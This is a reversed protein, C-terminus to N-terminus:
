QYDLIYLHKRCVKTGHMLVFHQLFENTAIYECVILIVIVKNKLTANCDDSPKDLREWVIKIKCNVWTVIIKINNIIINKSLLIVRLVDDYVINVDSSAYM